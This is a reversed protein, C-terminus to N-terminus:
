LEGAREALDARYPGLLATLERDHERCANFATLAQISDDDMGYDDCWSSFDSLDGATDMVLSHLVSAVDPGNIASGCSWYVTMSQAGCSLTVQYHKMSDSMLGDPRERVAVASMDLGIRDAMEELMGEDDDPWEADDDDISPCHHYELDTLQGDKCAADVYDNWAERMAVTDTDGYREIVAPRVTEIFGDRLAAYTTLDNM